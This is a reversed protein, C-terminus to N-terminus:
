DDTSTPQYMITTVYKRKYRTTGSTALVGNKISSTALHNLVTHNPMNLVSSDDKMPTTGNLISKGLFLPLSPPQPLDGIAGIARQYHRSEEPQDLDLLYKPIRAAYHKPQGIEEEKTAKEKEVAHDKSEITPPLVQPPFVGPPVQQETTSTSSPVDDASVEIYNVLINTYDVATPLDDSTRMEGDVIFKLHHTGPPLQIISSLLNRSEDKQLRFKRQWAAFTGTVYVKDGGQKWEVLTPVTKRTGDLPYAQLEDGLEDDDVTTSSLVSSRRPFPSDLDDGELASSLDASTIIPSGPTHIEEEIPLPLRPPINLQSEPIYNPDRPPGSPEFNPGKKRRGDAASPVRVPESAEKEKREKEDKEEKAIRESFTEWDLGQEKMRQRSQENGMKDGATSTKSDRGDHAQLHQHLRPKPSQFAQHATASTISESPQAPTAKGSQLAHISDRRRPEKRHNSSSPPNPSRAAPSSPASGEPKSPNNGM